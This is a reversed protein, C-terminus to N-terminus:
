MKVFLTRVLSDAIDDWKRCTMRSIVPLPGDSTMLSQAPCQFEIIPLHCLTNPWVATTELARHGEIIDDTAALLQSIM